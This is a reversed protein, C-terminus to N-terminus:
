MIGIADLLDVLEIPKRLVRDPRLDRLELLRAPDALATTVVVRVTSNRRRLERLVAAGDGDPLMLDLLIVDLPHALLPLADAVTSVTLVDCGKRTLISRLASASVVDDEVILVRCKIGTTPSIAARSQSGAPQRPSVASPSSPPSSV